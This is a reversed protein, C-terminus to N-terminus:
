RVFHGVLEAHTSWRFQGVPMVQELRYGGTVLVKADRAFTAPNCSAYAIRPPGAKALAPMQAEAGSRPPDLVVAEFRACEKEDLPRRYLDRHDAFLQLQARAGAAKLSLVADRAAEAAYVRRGEALALAFTGLGAFLDAVVTADGIGARVAAALAAEGDETAQLFAAPPLPVPVGGLTTTVPEPEWRTQPGYGDDIALRALEHASAFATLAETTDLTAAEIGEILLDVGQDAMTMRVEGGRRDPLLGALLKRLPAVLAFLEPRLVHCEAVDVIRHSRGENFGLLVSRGRREARLSARRRSFPPSIHPPLIPSELQQGSLAVAVRDTLFEAYSADDLHQLQCGGCTPFHRCPPEAHHPGPIISGDDGISDGPAALAFFRGDATVGDGRAAVRLIVSVFM